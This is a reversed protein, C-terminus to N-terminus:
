KKKKRKWAEAVLQKEVRDLTDQSIWSDVGAFIGPLDQKVMKVEKGYSNIIIKTQM